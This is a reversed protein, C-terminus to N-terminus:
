FLAFCNEWYRRGFAGSSVGEFEFSLYEKLIMTLGLFILAFAGSSVGEFEFSIWFIFVGKFDDDLEFLSCDRIQFFLVYWSYLVNFFFFRFVISSLKNVIIKKYYWKHNSHLIWCCTDIEFIKLLWINFNDTKTKTQSLTSHVLIYGEM